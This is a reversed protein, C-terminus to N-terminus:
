ASLALYSVTAVDARWFSETDVRNNLIGVAKALTYPDNWTFDTGSADSYGLARLVFTLYTASSADGSGFKTASVGNTLGNVYAYGVYSNAWAPVDDFPHRWTGELADQEKGLVRILMVLAEIRTPARDLDFDTDSVGKFLGLQKLTVAYGEEVSIDRTGSASIPVVATCICMIICLFFAIQRKV